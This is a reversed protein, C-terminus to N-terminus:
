KGGAFRYVEVPMADSWPLALGKVVPRVRAFYFGRAIGEVSVSTASVRREEIVDRFREDKALQWEYTVGPDGNWSM